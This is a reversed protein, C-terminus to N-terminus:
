RNRFLNKALREVTDETPDVRQSGFEQVTMPAPKLTPIIRDALKAVVADMTKDDMIPSASVMNVKREEMPAKIEQKAEEVKPAEVVMAPEPKVEAEFNAKQSGFKTLKAEIASIRDEVSTVKIDTMQDEQLRREAKYANDTVSHGANKQEETQPNGQNEMTWEKKVVVASLDAITGKSDKLGELSDKSMNAEKDKPEEPMEFNTESEHKKKKDSNSAIKGNVHSEAPSGASSDSTVTGAEFDASKISDVIVSFTATKMGKEETAEASFNVFIDKDRVGPDAVLSFNRYFFNTPQDFQEPWAIGASIAMPAEGYKLAVATNPDWIHLDGYLNGGKTYPNKISGAWAEAEKDKHSYIIRSNLKDWKTNTLSRTVEEPLISWKNWDGAKFLLQDKFIVPLDVESLKVM